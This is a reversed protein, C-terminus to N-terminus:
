KVWWNEWPYVVKLDPSLIVEHEYYDIGDKYCLSFFKINDFKFDNFIYLRTYEKAIDAKVQELDENYDILVLTKKDVIDVDDLFYFNCDCENPLKYYSRLMLELSASLGSTSFIYQPTFGDIAMDRVLNSAITKTDYNITTM